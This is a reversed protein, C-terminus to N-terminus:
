ASRRTFKNVENGWSDWGPRTQRAFLELYPGDPYLSEIKAYQEDPKRSHERVPAYILASVSRNAPKRSKGKTALLCPESNARTYYGMGKFFGYGTPNSKVWVWALTVYEFGWAEIVRLADPLTPWCAWLFLVANDDSPPALRCIEETTMTPYHRNAGRARQHMMGPADAAFNRFHWPPDALIVPYRSM